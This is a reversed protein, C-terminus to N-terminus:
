LLFHPRLRSDADPTFNGLADQYFGASSTINLADPAEAYLAQAIDTGDDFNAYVRYTTGVATTAVVEYTLGTFDAKAIMVSFLLFAAVSLRRTNITNPM